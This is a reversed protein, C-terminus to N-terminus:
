CIRWLTAPRVQVPLQYEALWVQAARVSIDFRGLRLEVLSFEVQFACLDAGWEIGCDLGGVDIYAVEGRRLFM